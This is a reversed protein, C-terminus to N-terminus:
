RAAVRRLSRRPERELTRADRGRLLDRQHLPVRSRRARPDPPHGGQAPERTESSARPPPAATAASRPPPAAARPPPPTAASRPPPAATGAVASPSAGTRQACRRLGPDAGRLPRDPRPRDEGQEGARAHGGGVVAVPAPDRGAPRQPSAICPAG